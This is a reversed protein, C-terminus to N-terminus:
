FSLNRKLPLYGFKIIHERKQPFNQATIDVFSYSNGFEFKADKIQLKSKQCGPRGGRGGGGGGGGEAKRVVSFAPGSQTLPTFNLTVSDTGCPSNSSLGRRIPANFFDLDSIAACLHSFLGAIRPDCNKRKKKKHFVTSFSHSM